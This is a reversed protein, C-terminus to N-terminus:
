ASIETATITKIANASWNIKFSNSGGSNNGVSVQLQLRMTSTTGCNADVARIPIEEFNSTMSNYYGFTATHTGTHIVADSDNSNVVRFDAHTSSSDVNGIVEAEFIVISDNFKPTIDVYFNTVDTYTANNSTTFFSNAVQRQVVQIVSGSPMKLTHTSLDIQNGSKSEIKDVLLRSTM